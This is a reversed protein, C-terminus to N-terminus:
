KSKIGNVSYRQEKKISAYPTIKKVERRIRKSMKKKFSIM